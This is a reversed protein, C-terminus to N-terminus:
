LEAIADIEVSVGKPLKAVQVCSRSPAVPSDKFFDAYIENVAAFDNLDQLFVTCRVVNQPGAGAAKLVEGLNKLVQKAEAQVDGQGILEGTKADLAIQGSVYLTSGRVLVAQSYPGLPAPAELTNIEQITSSKSSSSSSSMKLTLTRTSSSPRLEYSSILPQFGLVQTQCHILLTLLVFLLSVSNPTTFGLRFTTAM